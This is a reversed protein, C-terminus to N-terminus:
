RRDKERTGTDNLYPQRVQSPTQVESDQALVHNQRCSICRLEASTGRFGITLRDNPDAHADRPGLRAYDLTISRLRSLTLNRARRRIRLQLGARGHNALYLEIRRSKACAPPASRPRDWPATSVPAVTPPWPHVTEITVRSEPRVREGPRRAYSQQPVSSSRILMGM